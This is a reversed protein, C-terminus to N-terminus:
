FIANEYMHEYILITKLKFFVRSFILESLIQVIQVIHLSATLFSTANYKLCDKVVLAM